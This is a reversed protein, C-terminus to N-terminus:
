NNRLHWFFLRLATHTLEVSDFTQFNYVTAFLKFLLTIELLTPLETMVKTTSATCMDFLIVKPIYSIRMLLHCLEKVVNQPVPIKFQFPLFISLFPVKQLLNTPLVTFGCSDSTKWDFRRHFAPWCRTVCASAKVYCTRTTKSAFLFM